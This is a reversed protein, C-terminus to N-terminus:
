KPTEPSKVKQWYQNIEAVLDDHRPGLEFNCRMCVKPEGPTQSWQQAECEPCEPPEADTRDKMETWYEQKLVHLQMDLDPDAVPTELKETINKWAVRLEEHTMDEPDPPEATGTTDPGTM